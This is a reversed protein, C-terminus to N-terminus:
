IEFLHLVLAGGMLQVTGIHHLFEGLDFENGTGVWRFKRTITKVPGEAPKSFLVWLCPQDGQLDVKLITAGHPLALDFVGDGELPLKYKWIM